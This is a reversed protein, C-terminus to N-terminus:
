PYFVKGRVELSLEGRLGAAGLARRRARDRTDRPGGGPPDDPAGAEDQFRYFRVPARFLHLRDLKIWPHARLSELPYKSTSKM